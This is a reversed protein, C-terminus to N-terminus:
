ISVADEAFRLMTHAINQWSLSPDFFPERPLNLASMLADHLNEDDEYTFVRSLKRRNLEDTKRAVVPIGSALYEYLKMPSRGNNAVIPRLPLLGVDAHQLYGPIRSYPRPGLFKVNGIGAFESRIEDSAMGIIYFDINRHACAADLLGDFDFRFDLAGVYICKKRLSIRYEDPCVQRTSFLDFDVGNVQIMAPKDLEFHDSLFELVPKSTAIVADCRKLIHAELRYWSTLGMQSYIDTPRYILKRFKVHRLMGILKPDDILVLDFADIELIAQQKAIDRRAPFAIDVGGTFFLGAPVLTRPIYSHLNDFVRRMRGALNLRLQHVSRNFKHLPTIPTSIYFVVHGMRAFTEALHHSGVRYPSDWYTHSLFLINM